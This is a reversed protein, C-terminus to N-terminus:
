RALEYNQNRWLMEGQVGALFLFENVSAVQRCAIWLIEGTQREAPFESTTVSGTTLTVCHGFNLSQVALAITFDKTTNRAEGISCM